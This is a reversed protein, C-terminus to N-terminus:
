IYRMSICIRGVLLYDKHQIDLVKSSFKREAIVKCDISGDAFQIHCINISCDYSGFILYLENNYVLLKVASCGDSFYENDVSSLENYNQDYLSISLYSFIRSETNHVDGGVARVFYNKINVEDACRLNIKKSASIKSSFSFHIVDLESNESISLTKVVGFKNNFCLLLLGNEVSTIYRLDDFSQGDSEAITAGAIYSKDEYKIRFKQLVTKGNNIYGTIILDSEIIGFTLVRGIPETIRCILEETDEKIISITNDYSCSIIYNEKNHEVQKNQWVWGTHLNNSHICEWGDQGKIWVCVEGSYHATIMKRDSIIDISHIGNDHGELHYLLTADRGEASLLEIARDTSGTVIYKKMNHKFAVACNVEMSHHNGYLDSVIIEQEERYEDTHVNKMSIRLLGASQTDDEINATLYIVDELPESFSKWGKFGQRTNSHPKTYIYKMVSDFSRINNFVSVPVVFVSSCVHPEGNVDLLNQTITANILLSEQKGFNVVAIDKIQINNHFVYTSCKWKNKNSPM